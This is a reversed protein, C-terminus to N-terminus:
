QGRSFKERQAPSMKAIAAELDNGDLADLHAFESGIDGPGDAGPVTALNKPPAPPKRNQEAPKAPTTPAKTPTVTGHLANVRKHAETLFWDMSKDQNEPKNALAKVFTDLDANRAADKRYDVGEDKLASAYLSDISKAWANAASQETMERSVEAKTQARMLAERKDDLEAKQYEFAEFEIEGAKFQARLAATKEKIDTVQADFDAPLAAQYSTPKESPASEPAPTESKAVVDTANVSEAKDPQANVTIPKGDADLIEDPDGDDDGDDDSAGGALRQLSAKEQDSYESDNFAEREEPTLNDLAAQDLTVTSSM